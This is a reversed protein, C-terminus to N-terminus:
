DGAKVRAKLEVEKPYTTCLCPTLGSRGTANPYIMAKEETFSDWMRVTKGALVDHGEVRCNPNYQWTHKGVGRAAHSMFRAHHYIRSVMSLSEGSVLQMQILAEPNEKVMGSSGGVAAISSIISATKELTKKTFWDVTGRPDDSPLLDDGQARRQRGKFSSLVEAPDELEQAARSIGTDFIRRLVVEASGTWVRNWRALDDFPQGNKGHEEVARRSFEGVLRDWHLRLGPLVLREFNKVYQHSFQPSLDIQRVGSTLVRTKPPPILRVKMGEEIEEEEPPAAVEGGGEGRLNRNGLISAIEDWTKGMDFYQRAAQATLNLETARAVPDEVDREMRPYDWDCELDKFHIDLLGNQMIDKVYEMKSKCTNLLFGKRQEFSNAYNAYEFIGVRAPPVGFLACIEERSLKKGQIFDLDKVSSFLPRVDAGGEALLPLHGNVFGSYLKKLEDIYDKRQKASGFVRKLLIVIPNKIGGKFFGANWIAMNVEQEIALRGAALPTLGRDPDYPNYYSFQLLEGPKKRKETKQGQADMEAWHSLLKRGRVKDNTYVPQYRSPPDIFIGVPVGSTKNKLEISGFIEGYNGMNIFIRRLFERRSPINFEPYKANPRFLAHVPHTPPVPERDPDSLTGRPFFNFDYSTAADAIANICAFAYTVTRYTDSFKYKRVREEMNRPFNTYPNISSM